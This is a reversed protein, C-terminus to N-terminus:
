PLLLPRYLLHIMSIVLSLEKNEWLCSPCGLDMRAKNCVSHVVSLFHPMPTCHAHSGQSPTSVGNRMERRRGITVVRFVEIAYGCQNAGPEITETVSFLKMAFRNQRYGRSARRRQGSSLKSTSPSPTPPPPLSTPM